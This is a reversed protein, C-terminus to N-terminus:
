NTDFHTNIYSKIEGAPLQPNETFNYHRPHLFVSMSESTWTMLRRTLLWTLSKYMHGLFSAVDFAVEADGKEGKRRRKRERWRLGLM